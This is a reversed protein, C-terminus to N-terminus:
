AAGLVASVVSKVAADVGYEGREYAALDVWWRGNVREAPLLGRECYARLTPLCPPQGAYARSRFESLRILKKM